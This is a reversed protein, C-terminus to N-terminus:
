KSFLNFFTRLFGTKKQNKKASYFDKMVKLYLLGAECIMLIMKM